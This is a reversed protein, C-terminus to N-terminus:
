EIEQLWFGHKCASCSFNAAPCSFHTDIVKPCIIVIGNFCEAYPFQKLFESQHTKHPHEASWKEVVAVLEEQWEFADCCTNNDAPCNSCSSGFSKCMRNREKIFEVADM